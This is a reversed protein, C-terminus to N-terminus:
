CYPVAVYRGIYGDWRWRTPCPAYYGPYDAYYRPGYDYYRGGYYPRSSSAIAAGAALGLIGAGIALGTRDGRYYHGHGYHGHGYGRHWSRANAPAVATVTAAALALAAASATIM